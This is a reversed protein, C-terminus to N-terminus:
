PTFSGNFRRETLGSGLGSPTNEGGLGVAFLRQSDFTRSTAEAVGQISFVTTRIYNMKAAEHETHTTKRPKQTYHWARVISHNPSVFVLKQAFVM